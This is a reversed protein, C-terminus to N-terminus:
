IKKVIEPRGRGLNASDLGYGEVWVNNIEFGIYDLTVKVEHRKPKSLLVVTKCSAPNKNEIYKKVFALTHCTDAIDEIILVHRNAFDLDPSATIKPDRSSETFNKYSTIRLFDVEFDTLGQNWLSRSLDSLFMFSGSLIGLLIPQKSIYDRAIEMGLKRTRKTLDAESILIKVM